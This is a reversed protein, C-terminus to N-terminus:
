QYYNGGCIRSGNKYFFNVKMKMVTPVAPQTKLCKVMVLLAGLLLPAASVLTSGSPTGDAPIPPAPPGSLSLLGEGDGDGDNDERVM